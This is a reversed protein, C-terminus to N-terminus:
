QNMLKWKILLHKLIRKIVKDQFLLAPQYRGNQFTQIFLQEDQTLQMLCQLYQIIRAKKVELDFKNKESLM